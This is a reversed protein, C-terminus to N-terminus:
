DSVTSTKLRPLQLIVNFFYIMDNQADTAKTCKKHEVLARTLKEAGLEDLM